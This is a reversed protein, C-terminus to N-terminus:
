VNSSRTYGVQVQGKPCSHDPRITGNAAGPGANIVLEHLALSLSLESQPLPFSVGSSFCGQIPIEVRERKVSAHGQALSSLLDSPFPRASLPRQGRGPETIARAPPWARHPLAAARHQHPRARDRPRHIVHPSGRQLGPVAPRTAPRDAAPRCRSGPLPAGERGERVAPNAGLEAPSWDSM